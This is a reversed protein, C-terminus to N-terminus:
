KDPIRHCAHDRIVWCNYSRHERLAAHVVKDPYLGPVRDSKGVSADFKTYRVSAIAVLSEYPMYGGVTLFLLAPEEIPRITATCDGLVRLRTLPQGTWVTGRLNGQVWAKCSGRSQLCGTFDGGVFMHHIGDDSITAGELVDGAIVLESHGSMQIDAHVNGYVIITGGDAATIGARVDGEVITFAPGGLKLPETVTALTRVDHFWTREMNGTHFFSASSHFANDANVHAHAVALPFQSRDLM